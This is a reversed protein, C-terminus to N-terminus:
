YDRKKDNNENKIDRLTKIEGKHVFKIFRNICDYIYNLEDTSLISLLYSIKRATRRNDNKDNEGLLIEEITYGSIASIKYYIEINTVKSTGNELRAITIPSLELEEAFEKRTQKLQKKRIYRINAGIKNYDM